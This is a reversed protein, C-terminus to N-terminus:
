VRHWTAWAAGPLSGDVYFRFAAVTGNTITQPPMDYPTILYGPESSARGTTVNAGSANWIWLMRGEDNFPYMQLLRADTGQQSVVKLTMEYDLLGIVTHGELTIDRPTPLIIKGNLKFSM